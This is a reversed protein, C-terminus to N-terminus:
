YEIVLNVWQLWNWHKVHFPYVSNINLEFVELTVFRKITRFDGSCDFVLFALSGAPPWRILGEPIHGALTPLDLSAQPHLCQFRWENNNALPLSTIFTSQVITSLITLTWYDWPDIVEVKALKCMGRCHFLMCLVSAISQQRSDMSTENCWWKEM